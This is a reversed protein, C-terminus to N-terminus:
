EPIQSKYPNVFTQSTPTGQLTSSPSHPRGKELNTTRKHTDQRQQTSDETWWHLLSLWPLWTVLYRLRIPEDQVLEDIDTDEPPMDEPLQPRPNLSNTPPAFIKFLRKTGPFEQQTKSPRPDTPLSPEDNPDRQRELVKYILRVFSFSGIIMPILQSPFFIRNGPGLVEKVHNFNLTCEVLIM